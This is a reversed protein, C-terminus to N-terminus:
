IGRDKERNGRINDLEGHWVLIQFVCLGMSNAEKPRLQPIQQDLATENEFTDRAREIWWKIEM